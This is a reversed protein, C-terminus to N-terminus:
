VPDGGGSKFALPNPLRVECVWYCSPSYILAEILTNEVYNTLSPCPRSLFWFLKWSSCSVTVWHNFCVLGTYCSLLVLCTFSSEKIIGSNYRSWWDVGSCWKLRQMTACCSLRRGSPLRGWAAWWRTAAWWSWAPRCWAPTPSHAGRLLSCRRVPEGGALNGMYCKDVQWTRRTVSILRAPEGQLVKFWGRAWKVSPECNM